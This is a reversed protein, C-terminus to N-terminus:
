APAMMRRRVLDSLEDVMVPRPPLLNLGNLSDMPNGEPEMIQLARFSVRNYSQQVPSWKYEWLEIVQRTFLKPHVVPVTVFSM